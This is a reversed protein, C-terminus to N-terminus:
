LCFLKEFLVKFLELADKEPKDVCPLIYVMDIPFYGRTGNLSGFAWTSNSQLLTDGNTGPELEVLDGKSLKLYVESGEGGDPKYFDQSAVVYISRKKLQHLLYDCLKFITVADLSKFKFSEKTVTEITFGDLLDEDSDHYINFIDTYPLEM